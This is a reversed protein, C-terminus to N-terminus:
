MFRDPPKVIRGSRTVTAGPPGGPEIRTEEAEQHSTNPTPAPTNTITAEPGAPPPTERLHSRNRRLESGNQTTVVYSRPVSEIKGKVTGPEWKHTVPDQITISTGTPLVPLTKVSRDHYFRQTEQRENLHKTIDESNYSRQIVRPLNDQLKRGLLLEAPSPLNSGIPTTRLCLLAMDPDANTTKTKQLASKVIKVQNEIFGNSQPYRPSSTIHKFGYENSFEKFM